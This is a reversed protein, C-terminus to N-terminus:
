PIIETSPGIPSRPGKTRLFERYLRRIPGQPPREPLRKAVRSALANADYREILAACPNCATWDPSFSDRRLEEHGTTARGVIAHDRMTDRDTFTEHHTEIATVRGIPTTTPYTWAVDPSSCFDCVLILHTAEDRPVPAPDHNYITDARLPHLYTVPVGDAPRHSNLPLHCTQCVMWTPTDPTSM